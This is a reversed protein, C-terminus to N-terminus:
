GEAAEELLHGNGSLSQFAGSFYGAFVNLYLLAETAQFSDVRKSM